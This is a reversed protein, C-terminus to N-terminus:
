RQVFASAAREISRGLIPWDPKLAAGIFVDSHNHGTVLCAIERYPNSGVKSLYDDIVCSGHANTFPLGETAAVQRVQTDGEERNHDVRFAAWGYLQETGQQPTANLYGAYPGSPARLSRTVTGTDGPIATWGPPYFLTAQSTPTTTQKWGAPPPAPHFWAFAGASGPHAAARPRARSSGAGAILPVAVAVALVIAIAGLIATRGVSRSTAM